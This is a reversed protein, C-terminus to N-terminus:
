NVNNFRSDFRWAGWPNKQSYNIKHKIFNKEQEKLNKIELPLRAMLTKLKLQSKGTIDVFTLMVTVLLEYLFATSAQSDALLELLNDLVKTLSNAKTMPQLGYDNNGAIIDVGQVGLGIYYGLGNFADGSTVLKIGENGVLRVSDAKIMIASNNKRYGVKGAALNFYEESDIDEANQTIYIRAADLEPSKNTYVKNGDKDVERALPGSLGAVIDICGNRTRAGSGTGSDPGRPRDRGQIIVTNHKGQIVDEAETAYYVPNPELIKSNFFGSFEAAVREPFNQSINEKSDDMLGPRISDVTPGNGPPREPINTTDDPETQNLIDLSERLDKENEEIVTTLDDLAEQTQEDDSQIFSISSRFFDTNAAEQESTIIIEGTDTNVYRNSGPESILKFNSGEDRLRQIDSETTSM